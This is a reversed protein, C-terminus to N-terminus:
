RLKERAGETEKEIQEKCTHIHRRPVKTDTKCNSNGIDLAICHQTRTEDRAVIRIDYRM